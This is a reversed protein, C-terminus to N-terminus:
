TSPEKFRRLRATNADMGRATIEAGVASDFKGLVYRMVQISAFGGDSGYLFRDPGAGALAMRITVPPSGAPQLWINPYLRAVDAADRWLDALGAHGLIVQTRPYRSALWAIQRSTCYPPTGDHFMVPVGLEGAVGMIPDMGAHTVSFAQLWPHLKVGILGLQQVCREIERAAADMAGPDVTCFGELRGPYRQAMEALADNARQQVALDRTTM